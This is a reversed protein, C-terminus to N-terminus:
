KPKAGSNVAPGSMSLVHPTLLLLYQKRSKPDRGMGAVTATKGDAIQVATQISFMEDNPVRTPEGQSPVTIPTGEEIPGSRSDEVEVALAVTRDAAVRPTMSLTTGMNRYTISNIATGHTTVNSSTIHPQNRGVLIRAKQNDLTTLEGRVVIEAQEPLSNPNFTEPRGARGKGAPKDGAPLRVLVFELQVMVAPHDLQEALRQVENVVEPSGSLLLSNSVVDPVIVVRRAADSRQGQTEAQFLTTLTNALDSAPVNKLGCVLRTHRHEGDQSPVVTLLEASKPLSGRAPSQSASPAADSAGKSKETVPATNPQRSLPRKPQGSDAASAARIVLGLLVAGSLGIRYM